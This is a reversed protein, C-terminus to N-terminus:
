LPSPCPLTFSNQPTKLCRLFARLLRKSGSEALPAALAAGPRKHASAALTFGFLSSVFVQKRALKGALFCDKNESRQHCHRPHVRYDLSTDNKNHKFHVRKTQKLRGLPRESQQNASLFSGPPKGGSLFSGATQGTRNFLLADSKLRPVQRRTPHPNVLTSPERAPIVLENATIGALACTIVADTSKRM